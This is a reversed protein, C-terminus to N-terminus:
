KFVKFNHIDLDISSRNEKIQQNIYEKNQFGPFHKFEVLWLTTQMCRIALWFGSFKSVFKSNLGNKSDSICKLPKIIFIANKFNENCYLFAPPIHLYKVRWWFNYNHVTNCTSWINYRINGSAFTSWAETFKELKRVKPFILNTIWDIVKWIFYCNSYLGHNVPSRPLLDM